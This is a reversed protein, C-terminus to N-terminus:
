IRLTKVERIINKLHEKFRLMVTALVSLIVASIFGVLLLQRKDLYDIQKTIFAIALGIFYTFLIIISTTYYQLYKSYHLDLLNKKIKDDLEKPIMM